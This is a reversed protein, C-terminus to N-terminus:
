EQVPDNFVLPKTLPGNRSAFRSYGPKDHVGVVVALESFIYVFAKPGGETYQWDVSVDKVTITQRVHGGEKMYDKSNAFPLNGRDNWEPQDPTPCRNYLWVDGLIANEGRLYAYAVKGDDDFSVKFDGYPSAFDGLTDIPPEM